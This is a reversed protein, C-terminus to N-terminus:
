PKQEEPKPAQPLPMWATPEYMAWQEGGAEQWGKEYRDDVWRLVYRQEVPDAGSIFCLLPRGDRPATEIPQWESM